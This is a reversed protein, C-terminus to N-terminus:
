LQDTKYFRYANYTRTRSLFIWIHYSDMSGSAELLFPIGYSRLVGVVKGVKERTDTEGNHSDFDDCCWTVTDDLAIQYVGATIEGAIHQGIRKETLEGRVKTFV